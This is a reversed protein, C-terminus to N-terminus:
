PVSPPDGLGGLLHDRTINIFDRESIIGVLRGDRVVPLCSVRHNVMREIATLAPTDPSVTVLDTSMVDRVFRPAVAAGADRAVIRVISRYSVMGLLRHDPDEIPVHRIGRWDMMHAVLGVPDDERATLLDTTMFDEVRSDARLRGERGALDALPWTHAPGGEAQREEMVRTLADLREVTTARADEDRMADLSALVWQAGTRRTAVRAAIVDLLRDSDAADVGATRLGARALPILDRTLLTEVPVVAGNLWMLQAGLGQRAAALFNTRAHEFDMLKAFDIRDAIAARLLGLWLAANAVEDLLSPGSPLTRNEIRLHPRGDLIGYCPRNWRWVTGNHIRLAELKPAENRGMAEFPDEPHEVGFIPRFRAVDEQYIELISREVWRRGFTVRAVSDRETGMARTDTSQQFLAIRSEHWLRRGFLVPANVAAALVPATFAQAANYVLPFDAPDVQFHMQFSCNCSEVMLSQLTFRLEDLGRIHIQIPEGRQLALARDLESYRPLPTMNDIVLDSAKLSPLIGALIVGAGVQSAAAATMTHNSRQHSRAGAVGAPSVRM